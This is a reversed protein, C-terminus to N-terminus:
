KKPKTTGNSSFFSQLNKQILQYNRFSFDDLDQPTINCLIEVLKLEADVESLGSVQRLHKVKPENLVVETSLNNNIKEQNLLKIKM